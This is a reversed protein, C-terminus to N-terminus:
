FGMLERLKKYPNDSKMLSTGILFGDVQHNMLELVEERKSIGSEAIVFKAGLEKIKPALEKSRSIDVKFTELDRNNIGIIRAGADLARKAEDLSFVEVLASLGLEESFRLLEYLERESLMRVILLIIDAGFAKAELIHIKDITFDKRLIPLNVTERVRKLDDLSGKFYHPETLVSIAVAGAEEYLKAQEEPKVEKIAGESPSAKKVEAIIKTGCSMLSKEFDYFKDREEILKELQKIYEPSSNIEKEKLARIEELFGM